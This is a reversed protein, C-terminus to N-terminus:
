LFPLTLTIFLCQCLVVCAYKVAVGGGRVFRAIIQRPGVCSFWGYPIRTFPPLIILGNTAGDVGAQVVSLDMGTNNSVIFQPVVQSEPSFTIVHGYTQSHQLFFSLFLSYHVCFDSLFFNEM